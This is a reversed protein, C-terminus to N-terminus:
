ARYESEVLNPFYALAKRYSQKTGHHAIWNAASVRAGSYDSSDTDPLAVIGIYVARDDAAGTTLVALFIAGAADDRTPVGVHYTNLIKM